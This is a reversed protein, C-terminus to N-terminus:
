VAPGMNFTRIQMIITSGVENYVRITSNNVRHVGLGSVPASTVNSISSGSQALIVIGTTGSNNSFSILANLSVGGGTEDVLFAMGRTETSFDASAGDNILIREMKDSSENAGNFRYETCNIAGSVDLTSGAWPSATGIGVKGTSNVVLSNNPASHNITIPGLFNDYRIRKTESASNDVIPILDAAAPTTLATLDSIKTDAM